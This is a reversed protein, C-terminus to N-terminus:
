KGQFYIFFSDAKMNFGGGKGGTNERLVFFFVRTSMEFSLANGGAGSFDTTM